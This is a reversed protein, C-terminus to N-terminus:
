VVAIGSPCLRHLVPTGVTVRSTCLVPKPSPDFSLPTPDFFICLLGGRLHSGLTVKANTRKQYFLTVWAETWSEVM